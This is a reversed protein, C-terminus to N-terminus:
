RSPCNHAASSTSALVIDALNAMGTLRAGTVEIGYDADEADHQENIVLQGGGPLGITSNPATPVSVTKGGIVLKMTTSGSTSGCRSTATATLGSIEIVPSGPLGVRVSEVTSSSTIVGPNLTTTVKPCLSESTLLPTSLTATCGPATTGSHATRVASTDPQAPLDIGLLLPLTVNASAGYARGTFYQLKLTAADESALYTDDGSFRAQAPVTASDTLPQDASSINCRATGQTNTVGVCSQQASGSGVNMRVSKGAIPRTRFDTLKAALKVPEGNALHTPGRYELTTPTQLQLQQSTNSPKYRGDGSFAVTLAAKPSVPQDVSNIVCRAAGQSDTTGTCTQRTNGSGLAFNLTRGSVPSGDVDRLAAVVPFDKGNVVRIRGTYATTTAIKEPTPTPTPTPTPVPLPTQTPTPTPKSGTNTVYASLSVHPDVGHNALYGNDDFTVIGYYRGAGRYPIEVSWSCPDWCTKGYFEAREGDRHFGSVNLGEVDEEREGDCGLFSGTVVVKEDIVEESISGEIKCLPEADDGNWHWSFESSASPPPNPPWGDHDAHGTASLGVVATVALIVCGFLAFLRKGM